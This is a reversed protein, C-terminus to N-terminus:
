RASDVAVSRAARWATWLSTWRSLTASAPQPRAAIGRAIRRDLAIRCRRWTVAASHTQLPAALAAAFDAVLAAGAADTHAPDFSDSRQGHRAFLQLPLFPHRGPQSRLAARLQRLLLGAAIPAGSGPPASPAFLAVDLGAIADAIGSRLQLATDIDPPSTDEAGLALAAHVLPQWGSSAINAAAPQDFLARLLPHAAGQGSGRALAEGWWALKVQAVGRDRPELMAEFLENQLAGWCAALARDRQPLFGLVPEMEPERALWKAIYSQAEPALTTM